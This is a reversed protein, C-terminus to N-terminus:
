QVAQLAQCSPAADPSDWGISQHGCVWKILVPSHLLVARVRKLSHTYCHAPNTKEAAARQWLSNSEEADPRRKCVHMGSHRCHCQSALPVSINGAGSSDWETTGAVKWDWEQTAEKLGMTAASGCVGIRCWTVHRAQQKQLRELTLDIWEHRTCTHQGARGEPKLAALLVVLMGLHPPSLHQSIPLPYLGM